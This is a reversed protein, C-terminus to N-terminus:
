GSRRVLQPARRSTTKTPNTSMAPKAMRVKERQDEPDSRAAEELQLRIRYLVNWEETNLAAGDIRRQIEDLRARLGDPDHRLTRFAEALDDEFAQSDEAWTLYADRLALEREIAARARCATQEPGILAVHTAYADLELGDARLRMPEGRVVAGL